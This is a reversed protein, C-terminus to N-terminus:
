NANEITENKLKNEMPCLYFKDFLMGLVFGIGGYTIFDFIASYESM